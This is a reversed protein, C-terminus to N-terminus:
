SCPLLASSLLYWRLVTLSSKPFEFLGWHDVIHSMFVQGAIPLVM